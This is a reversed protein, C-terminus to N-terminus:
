YEDWSVNGHKLDMRAATYRGLSDAARILGSKGIRAYTVECAAILGLYENHQFLRPAPTM